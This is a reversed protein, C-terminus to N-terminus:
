VIPLDFDTRYRAALRGLAQRTNQVLLMPCDLNVVPAKSREVVMAAVEKQAVESLFNHGDFREGSLAFFLDGAQAERSDTCIRSVLLERSGGRQEGEVADCVYDLRRAEM